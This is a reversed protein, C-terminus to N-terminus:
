GHAWEGPEPAATVSDPRAGAQLETWPPLRQFGESTLMDRAVQFERVIPVASGRDSLDAVLWAALTPCRTQLMPLADAWSAWFAAPAIRVASRLELGGSRVPLTAIELRKQVPSM